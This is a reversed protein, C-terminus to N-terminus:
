TLLLKTVVDIVNSLGKCIGYVFTLEWFYNSLLYVILKNQILTNLIYRTYQVRNGYVPQITKNNNLPELILDINVM